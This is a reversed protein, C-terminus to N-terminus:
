ADQLRRTRMHSRMCLKHYRYDEDSLEVDNRFYLLQNYFVLGIMHIADSHFSIKGGNGEWSEYTFLVGNYETKFNM